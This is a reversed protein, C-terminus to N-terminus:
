DRAEKAGGAATPDVTDSATRTEYERTRRGSKIAAKTQSVLSKRIQRIMEFAEDKMDDPMRRLGNLMGRISKLLQDDIEGVNQVGSAELVDFIANVLTGREGADHKSAWDNVAKFVAQADDDITDYYMFDAGGDTCWNTSAHEKIFTGQAAVVKVIDRDEMVMGIIGNGPTTKEVKALYEPNDYRKSPHVAFGPGDHNYIRDIREFCLRSCTLSAYEALNGGKSHGGVFLRPPQTVAVEELYHRASGQSPVQQMFCLNFDERWGNISGDTGRFAVYASGDPLYFTVAGFQKDAPDNSEGVARGISCEMFRPSAKFAALFDSGNFGNLWTNGFLESRSMGAMATPLPVIESRACGGLMGREFCMFAATSFIVSDVSSLPKASFPERFYRLYDIITPQDKPPNHSM